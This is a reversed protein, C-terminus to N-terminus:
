SFLNWNSNILITKSLIWIIWQKREIVTSFQYRTLKNLFKIFNVFVEIKWLSKFSTAM